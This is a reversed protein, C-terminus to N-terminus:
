NELRKLTKTLMDRLSSKRNMSNRMTAELSPDELLKKVGDIVENKKCSYDYYGLLDALHIRLETNLSITALMELYLPIQDPYPYNKLTLAHLVRRSYETHYDTLIMLETRKIKQGAEMAARVARCVADNNRLPHEAMTKEVIEPPLM